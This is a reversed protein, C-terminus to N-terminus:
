PDLESKKQFIRIQLAGCVGVTPSVSGKTLYRCLGYMETLDLLEQYIELEEKKSRCTKSRVADSAKFLFVAARCISKSADPTVGSPSAGELEQTPTAASVKRCVNGPEDLGSM